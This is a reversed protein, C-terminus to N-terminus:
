QYKVTQSILHHKRLGLKIILDGLTLLRQNQDGTNWLMQILGVVDLVRRRSLAACELGQTNLEVSIEPMDARHWTRLQSIPIHLRIFCWGQVSLFSGVM